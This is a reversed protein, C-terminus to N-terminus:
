NCFSIATNIALFIEVNPLKQPNLPLYQQFVQILVLFVIGIFNFILVSFCYTKWDMEATADIKLFGTLYTEIKTLFAPLRGERNFVLNIYWGILPSLLTLLAFFALIQLLDNFKFM